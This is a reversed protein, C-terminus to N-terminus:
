RKGGRARRAPRRRAAKKRTPRRQSRPESKLLEAAIAQRIQEGLQQQLEEIAKFVFDPPRLKVTKM